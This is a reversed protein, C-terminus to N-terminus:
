CKWHAYIFYLHIYIYLPADITLEIHKYVHSLWENALLHKMQSFYGTLYIPIYPIYWLYRNQGDSEWKNKTTICEMVNWDMPNRWHVQTYFIEGSLWWVEDPQIEIIMSVKPVRRLYRELISHLQPPTLELLEQFVAFDWARLWGEFGVLNRTLWISQFPRQFTTHFKTWYEHFLLRAFWPKQCFRHRISVWPTCHAHPRRM